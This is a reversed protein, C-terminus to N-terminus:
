PRLRQFNDKAERFMRVFRQMEADRRAAIMPDRQGDRVLASYRSALGEAEELTKYVRSAVRDLDAYRTELRNIYQDREALAIKLREVVFATDGVFRLKSLPLPKDKPKAGKPPM